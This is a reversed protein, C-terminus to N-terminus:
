HGMIDPISLRCGGCHPSGIIAALGGPAASRRAIVASNIAIVAANIIAIVAANIIAIVAANIKKVHFGYRQISIISSFRFLTHSARHSLIAPVPTLNGSLAAATYLSTRVQLAM